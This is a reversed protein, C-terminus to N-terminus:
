RCKIGLAWSPPAQMKKNWLLFQPKPLSPAKDLDCFFCFDLTGWVPCFSGGRSVGQGGLHTWKPDANQLFPGRPQSLTLVKGLTVPCTSCLVQSAFGPRCVGPHQAREWIGSPQECGWAEEPPLCSPFHLDRSILGRIRVSIVAQLLIGMLHCWPLWRPTPQCGVAPLTASPGRCPAAPATPSLAGLPRPRSSFNAPVVLQGLERGGAPAGVSPGTALSGGSLSPPHLAQFKPHPLM